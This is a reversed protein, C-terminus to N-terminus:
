ETPELGDFFSVLALYEGILDPTSGLYTGTRYFHNDDVRPRNGSYNSVDSWSCKLAEERKSEPFVIAVAGSFEEEQDLYGYPINNAQLQYRCLPIWSANCLDRRRLDHMEFWEKAKM